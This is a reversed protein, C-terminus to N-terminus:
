TIEKILNVKKRVKLTNEIASVFLRTGRQNIAVAPPSATKERKPRKM